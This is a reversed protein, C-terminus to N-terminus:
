QPDVRQWFTRVRGTAPPRGCNGPEACYWIGTDLPLFIVPAPIGPSVLDQFRDDTTNALGTTDGAVDDTVNFNFAAGGDDLRVAYLRGSGEKPGCSRNASTGQPLYSTLFITGGFTIPPSLAKEGTESLALKWGNKLSEELGCNLPTDRTLCDEKTIDHLEAATLTSDTASGAVVNRDKIMFVYDQTVGSYDLPDERDGSGVVVADFVGYSDEGQVLDVSHFFRRDDIVADGGAHYGLRALLSLKWNDIKGELDARWVNGGTDGVVIRDTIGDGNTDAISVDAPISDVLDPHTYIKGSFGKTEGKAAKWILEGTKANVVYIAQGKTDPSNPSLYDKRSDYGGAFIVVPLRKGDSDLLTGLRPTSFTQGLEQFDSQTPNISWMMKPQLPDSVDLAYYASGGRRMGFFLWTNGTNEDRYVSPVGDVSYPHKPKTTLTTNKRLTQQIGMASRPMFAWVEEGLESSDESTNRIFRMFGDNSGVAIFIAQNEDTHGGWTGYNIPLPRSHLADGMLWPRAATPAAANDVDIGRIWKLLTLADSDTAAGLQARLTSATESDANLPALNGAERDYFLQRAGLEGNTAKPANSIFGPIKQGSGGRPVHRGDRGAIINKNTDSDTLLEGRTWFTLANYNIRGDVPSIAPQGLADVLQVSDPSQKIKLKKVNGDWFPRVSEDPQFLSIYVNDIVTARNFVNVPVSAAVFTTSVSLIQNFLNELTTVLEEPDEAMPLAASTGGANAYGNTTQNIQKPSVVFYSTVSQTGDMSSLDADRMYKVVTGFNNNSGSLNIGGMGGSAAPATIAADADSESQSVQFLFNIAFVKTCTAPPAFPSVYRTGANDLIKKDYCAPNKTADASSCAMNTSNDNSVGGSGEFDYWGNFGNYVKQGTLYRFFEFYLEKGQYPHDPSNSQPKLQKLALLKGNLRAKAGNADDAMLTEFGMLIAGGQSCRSGVAPSQGLEGDCTGTNNHSTMLGVKVGSVRGIVYKLSLRLVDFFVLAGSSPLDAAMGQDRFWKAQTCSGANVDSCITSTLNSRYDLTLMIMPESGPPPENLIYIDTDDARVLAPLSLGLGMCLPLLKRLLTSM